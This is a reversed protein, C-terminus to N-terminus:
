GLHAGGDQGTACCAFAFLPPVSPILSPPVIFVTRSAKSFTSPSRKIFENTLCGDGVGDGRAGRCVARWEARTPIPAALRRHWSISHDATFRFARMPANVSSIVRGQLRLARGFVYVRFFSAPLHCVSVGNPSPVGHQSDGRRPVRRSSACIRRRIRRRIPSSRTIIHAVMSLVRLLRPPGRRRAMRCGATVREYARRRDRNGDGLGRGPKLSAVRSTALSRAPPRVTSRFYQALAVVFEQAPVDKVTRPANPM